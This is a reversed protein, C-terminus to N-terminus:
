KKRWFKFLNIFWQWLRAPDPLIWGLILLFILPYDPGEDIYNITDIESAHIESSDGTDVETNIERDGIQADVSIGNQAGMGLGQKIFDLPTCAMLLLMLTVLTIHKIM